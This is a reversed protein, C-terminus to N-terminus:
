QASDTKSNCEMSNCTLMEEELANTTYPLQLFSPEKAWVTSTQYFFHKLNTIQIELAESFFFGPKSSGSKSPILCVPACLVSRNNSQLSKSPLPAVIRPGVYLWQLRFRMISLNPLYKLRQCQLDVLKSPSLLPPFFKSFVYGQQQDIKSMSLFTSLFLTLLKWIVELSSSQIHPKM